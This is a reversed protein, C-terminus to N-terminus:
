VQGAALEGRRGASEPKFDWVPEQWKVRLRKGDKREEALVRSM